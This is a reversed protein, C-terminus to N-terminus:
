NERLLNTSSSQPILNSDAEVTTSMSNDGSGVESGVISQMCGLVPDVVGM